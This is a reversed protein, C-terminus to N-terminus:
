TIIREGKADVLKLRNRAREEDLARNANYERAAIDMLFAYNRSIWMAFFHAPNGAINPPGETKMEMRVESGSAKLVLLADADVQGEIVQLQPERPIPQDELEARPQEGMDQIPLGDGTQEIAEVADKDHTNDTTM